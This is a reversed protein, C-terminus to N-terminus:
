IQRQRSFPIVTYISHVHDTKFLLSLSFFFAFHQFFYFEPERQYWHYGYCAISHAVFSCLSCCMFHEINYSKSRKKKALCKTGKWRVFYEYRSGVFMMLTLINPLLINVADNSSMKVITWIKQEIWNINKRRKKPINQACKANFKGM